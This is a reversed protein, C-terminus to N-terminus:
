FMGVKYSDSKRLVQDASTMRQSVWKQQLKHCAMHICRNVFETDLYFSGGRVLM